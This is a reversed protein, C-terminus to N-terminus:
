ENEFVATTGAVGAPQYGARYMDVFPTFKLNQEDM